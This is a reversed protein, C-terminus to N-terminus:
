HPALPMVGAPLASNGLPPLARWHMAAKADLAATLAEGLAIALAKELGPAVTILDIVQQSEDDQHRLLAALAQDEARLHTIRADADQAARRAESQVTEAARYADEASRAEQQRRALEKESADLMAAAISTDPRGAAEAALKTRRADMQERRRALEAQRAALNEIEQALSQRRAEDRAAAEVLQALAADLNEVEATIAALAQSAQPLQAAIDIATRAIEQQEGGLKEIAADADKRHTEERARDAAAEALRHEQAAKEEDVRKLENDIQERALTLKQVIAAAAAEAQRLGPLEAAIEARATNGKTVTALLENARRETEALGEKLREENGQAEVWRLHLLAAEARRIHDALNKYRSAQRVQQKLNRLQTDYAKLVDDVRQINQEAAKLKLEAEHRRAQLGATGSAEELIARRDQPKARILADIQGQGVLSTSHAGTAQDAFLLQVDRQRVPRGNIRYDSGSGREIQRMVQVEDADNFEATAGRGANDLELTVEAFNRSPRTATGAFIVDDMESGRMRRPSNEGMVWRLAEVLNSKGCGNPGVIGTLGPPIELDTPEVFSKFGHLRLRTFQM